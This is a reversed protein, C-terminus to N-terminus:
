EPPLLAGIRGILSELWAIFEHTGGDHIANALVDHRTRTTDVACGEVAELQEPTLAPEVPESM